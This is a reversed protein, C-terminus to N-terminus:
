KFGRNRGFQQRFGPVGKRTKVAIKFSKSMETLYRRAVEREAVEGYSWRKPYRAKERLLHVISRRDKARKGARRRITGESKFGSEKSLIERPQDRKKLKGSTTRRVASTPIVLHRHGKPRRVAGTVHDALFSADFKEDDRIGMRAKAKPFDQKRANDVAIANKLGKRRVSFEAAMSKQVALQAKKATRTLGLAVAFPM